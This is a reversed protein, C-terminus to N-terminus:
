EVPTPLAVAPGTGPRRRRYRHVKPLYEEEPREAPQPEPRQVVADGLAAGASELQPVAEPSEVFLVAPFPGEGPGPRPEVVGLTGFETVMRRVSELWTAGLRRLWDRRNRFAAQRRELPLAPNMVTRYDEESLVQNPVRAPWFTPTFATFKEYGSRCSATDTQWPVAMWRTLDGPGLANLPGSSSLAVQPVLVDGYDPEPLSAPREKFRFKAADRYLFRNRVVWTLECGPHFADALCFSLAAETLMAPQRDLPVDSLSRSAAPEAGYDPTFDGAAWDSLRALQRGSLALDKHTSGEVDMTDGYVWPWLGTWGNNTAYDRFCNFVQKRVEANTADKSASALRALYEPRLLEQAGQWGFEVAFGANVWQLESLREFIPLVDRTFSTASGDPKVYLDTLLDYMTRISKLSPAYNPPAVAVWASEVPLKRGGFTVRASVPGDALDDHWGDNNAFDLPPAGYASRSVGRGGLFLLRGDGDTRLEGLYVPTGLFKGTDFAYAAGQTDRGQISRPGPDIVLQGREAGHLHSNRRGAPEVASDHVAPRDMALTFKYWASKKNAVHVTWEIEANEATLEAVVEKNANYGYIRFRAAERKLAGTADKYFGHPKARPQTVEPGLFYEDQSNGVRAIGIAPHIEARVITHDELM